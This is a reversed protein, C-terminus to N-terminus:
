LNAALYEACTMVVTNCANPQIPETYLGMIIGLPLANSLDLNNEM